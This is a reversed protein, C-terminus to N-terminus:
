RWLLEQSWSSPFGMLVPNVTPYKMLLAKFDSVFTNKQDIANLWYVICCLSPYLRDSAYGNGTIWKGRMRENMRPVLSFHANWLRAHHACTNRVVTLAALWSQMCKHQPINFSRAVQKKVANDNMNKYLKSLTGFSAVELTKWAPPMDPEDYKRFHETIFEDHSRDLETRLFGLNANFLDTDEALASDLFWFAGHAMSFHHIIRTRVSIEIKQIAAFVLTKLESDFQYRKVVDEFRSGARFQHLTSDQEMTRWYGALRFYSINELVSIAEQENDFVLGRRKLIDIQETISIPQKNYRMVYIYLVGRGPESTKPFRPPNQQM